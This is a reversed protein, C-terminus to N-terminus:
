GGRGWLAAQAMAEAGAADSEEESEEDDGSEAEVVGEIAGFGPALFDGFAEGIAFVEAGFFVADDADPPTAGDAGGEASEEEQGRREPHGATAVGRTAGAEGWGVGTGGEVEDEQHDEGPGDDDAGGFEGVAEPIVLFVGEAAVEVALLDNLGVVGEGEFFDGPVFGQEM